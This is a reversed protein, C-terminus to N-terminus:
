PQANEGGFGKGVAEYPWTDADWLIIKRSVLYECPSIGFGAGGDAVAFTAKPDLSHLFTFEPLIGCTIPSPNQHLTENLTDVAALASQKWFPQIVPNTVVIRDPYDIYEHILKIKTAQAKGPNHGPRSAPRAIM